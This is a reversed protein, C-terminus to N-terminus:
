VSVIANCYRQSASVFPFYFKFHFYKVALRYNLYMKMIKMGDFPFNCTTGVRPKKKSGFWSHSLHSFMLFLRSNKVLLLLLLFFIPRFELHSHFLLSFFRCYFNLPSCFPNLFLSYFSSDLPLYSHSNSKLPLNNNNFIRFSFLHFSRHIM